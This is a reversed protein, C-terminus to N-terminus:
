SVNPLTNYMDVHHLQIHLTGRRPTSPTFAAGDWADLSKLNKRESVRNPGASHVPVVDSMVLSVFCVDIIRGRLM